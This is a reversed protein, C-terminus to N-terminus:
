ADPKEKPYLTSILELQDLQSKLDLAGIRCVLHRAGAAVYRDLAATVQERTGALLVQITRVVEVPMGYTALAYDAIARQGTEADDTILVTVFLAPAVATAPRGAETAAERVRSLGAEYDAPDPPYPLWGDYLRGTRALASPSAGGLWIPPGGPRAPRLQEPIHDFRLVEGHYATPSDAAWLHRWLAVTDDLRAFRGRWPVESVAYEAESRRPFGAGVTVVLRGGSLLDLSAIAQAAQVPRRLAPLLAATGLRVRETAAAAASLMTFTEIVPRLLTDGAWLSAFGLREARVAFDILDRPDTGPGWQARGSPLVVGLRIGDGIGNASNM